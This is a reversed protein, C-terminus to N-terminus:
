FLFSAQQVHVVLVVEKQSCATFLSSIAPCMVMGGFVLKHTIRSPLRLNIFFANTQDSTPQVDNTARGFVSYSRDSVDFILAANM